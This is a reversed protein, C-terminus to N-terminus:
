LNAFSNIAVAYINRIATLINNSNIDNKNTKEILRSEIKLIDLILSLSILVVNSTLTKKVIALKIKSKYLCNNKATFKDPNAATVM